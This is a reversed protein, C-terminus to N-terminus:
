RKQKKRSERAPPEAPAPVPNIFKQHVWGFSEKPPEICLWGNEEGRCLLVENIQARGVIPASESPRCRINVNEKTVKLTRCAQDKANPLVNTQPLCDALGKKLFSPAQKPLRLKYWGNAELVVEVEEGKSLRCIAEASITSDARLNVAETNIRGKFPIQQTDLAGAYLQWLMAAALVAPLTKRM